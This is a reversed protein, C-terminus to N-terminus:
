FLEKKRYVAAVACARTGNAGAVDDTWLVRIANIRELRYVTYGWLQLSILHKTLIEGHMRAIRSSVNFFCLRYNDSFGQHFLGQM